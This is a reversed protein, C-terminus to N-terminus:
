EPNENNNDEMLMIQAFWQLPNNVKVKLLQAYTQSKKVLRDDTDSLNRALAIASDVIQVITM